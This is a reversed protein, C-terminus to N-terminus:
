LRSSQTNRATALHRGSELPARGSPHFGFNFGVRNNMEVKASDVLIAVCEFQSPYSRDPESPSAGRGIVLLTKVDTRALQKTKHNPLNGHARRRM